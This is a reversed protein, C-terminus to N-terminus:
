VGCVSLVYVVLSRHHRPELRIWLRCPLVKHLQHLELLLRRQVQQVAEPLFQVLLLAVLVVEPHAEQHHGEGQHGWQGERNDALVEVLHYEQLLAQQHDPDLPLLLHAGQHPAEQEVPYVHDEEQHHGEPDALRHEGQGAQLLVELGALDEGQHHDALAM